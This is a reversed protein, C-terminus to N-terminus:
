PPMTRPMAFLYLSKRSASPSCGVPIPDQDSKGLRCVLVAYTPRLSEPVQSKEPHNTVKLVITTIWPASVIPNCQESTIAFTTRSSVAHLRAVLLPPTLGLLLGRAVTNPLQSFAPRNTALGNSRSSQDYEM